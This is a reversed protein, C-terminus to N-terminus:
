KLISLPMVTGNVILNVSDSLLTSRDVTISCSYSGNDSQQVPRFQLQSTTSTSSITISGSTVVPTRGDPPGKLWQFTGESGGASCELTYSEGAIPPDSPISIFVDGGVHGFFFGESAIINCIIIHHVMGINVCLTQNTSTADPVECYFQGTPSEVGSPRNLSVEGNDGRTRYFATTSTTGQVLAGNPQYWEGLRPDGRCCRMNDTICQLAGNPNDSINRININSNNAIYVGRLSLYVGSINICVHM